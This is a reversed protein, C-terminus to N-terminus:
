KSDGGEKTKSLAFSKFYAVTGPEGLKEKSMAMYGVQYLRPRVLYYDFRGHITRGQSSGTFVISRGPNGDLTIKEESDMTGNVNNLAGNRASDLLANVDAGEFAAEPYDSYAVMCAAEQQETLYTIMALTGIKTPVQQTQQTPAPFGSPFQVVFRGTDSSIKEGMEASTTSSENNKGATTDTKGDSPTDGKKDCAAVTLAVALIAVLSHFRFRHM